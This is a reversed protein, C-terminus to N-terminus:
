QKFFRFGQRDSIALLQTKSEKDSLFEDFSLKLNKKLNKVNTKVIKINEVLFSVDEHLLDQKIEISTDWIMFFHAM